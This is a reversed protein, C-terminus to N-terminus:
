IDHCSQTDIEIFNGQQSVGSFAIVGAYSVMGLQTYIMSDLTNSHVRAWVLTM